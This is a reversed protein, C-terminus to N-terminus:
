LNELDSSLIDLYRRVEPSPKERERMLSIVLYHLDGLPINRFAYQQNLRAPLKCGVSYMKGESVLSNKSSRDGVTMVRGMNPKLTEQLNEFSLFAKNEYDIFTYNQFDSLKIEPENYLPHQPGIRLVVPVKQVTHLAIGKARAQETLTQLDQPKVICVALDLMSFYLKDIAEQTTLIVYSFDVAECDQYELCLSSYAQCVPTYSTGAIRVRATNTQESAQRMREYSACINGAEELVLLGQETPRIGKNSRVFVPFGLEQELSCLANSLNPQALFLNQGGQLRFRDPLGGSYVANASHDYCGGM